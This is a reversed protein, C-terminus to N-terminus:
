VGVFVRPDVPVGGRRRDHLGFRRVCMVDHLRDHDVILQRRRGRCAAFPLVGSIAAPLFLVLLGAPGLDLMPQLEVLM